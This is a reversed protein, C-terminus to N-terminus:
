PPADALRGFSLYYPHVNANGGGGQLVYCTASWTNTNGGNGYSSLYDGGVPQSPDANSSMGTPTEFYPAPPSAPSAADRILTACSEYYPGGGYLVTGGLDGRADPAVAAYAWAYSSNWIVPESLLADTTQDLRVFQVYPYPFSGLGGSGQSADWGFGIVGGAVWATVLRSDSRRCWNSSSPGGIRPCRYPFNTPFAAHDVDTSTVGNFGVSEPWSFVRITNNDVHAAFYMTTTAGVTPVPAFWSTSFYSYPLLGGAALDDLKIRLVDSRRYRGIANYEQIGMYLYNNSVAIHPQDYNTGRPAGVQKPTLDWYTFTGAALQAQGDAVALRVGNNGKADPSYLLVWIYLDRSPEYYALQDCCFGGWKSPFKKYPNMYGFTSGGDTSVAAFWNWTELVGTGNSAVSPEAVLAGKGAGKGTALDTSKFVTFDTPLALSPSRISGKATPAATQPVSPRAGSVVANPDVPVRPARPQAFSSIRSHSPRGALSPRRTATGSRSVRALGASAVGGSVARRVVPSTRTRGSAAPQMAAILTAAVAVTALKRASPGGIPM